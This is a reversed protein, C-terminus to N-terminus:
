REGCRHKHNYSGRRRRRTSSAIHWQGCAGCQYIAAETPRGRNAYDPNTRRLWRIHTLQTTAEEATLYCRKGSACPEASPEHRPVPLADSL